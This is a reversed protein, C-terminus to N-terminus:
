APKSWHGIEIWQQLHRATGMEPEEAAKYNPVGPKGEDSTGSCVM